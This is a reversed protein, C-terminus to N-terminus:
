FGWGKDSSFHFLVRSYEGDKEMKSHLAYHTSKYVCDITEAHSRFWKLVNEARTETTLRGGEGFVHMCYDRLARDQIIDGRLIEHLAPTDHQITGNLTGNIEEVWRSYYKM